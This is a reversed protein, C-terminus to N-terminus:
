ENLSVEVTPVRLTVSADVRLTKSISKTDMPHAERKLLVTRPTPVRPQHRDVRGM